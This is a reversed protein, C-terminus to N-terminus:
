TIQSWAKIGVTTRRPIMLHRTLALVYAHTGPSQEAEHEAEEAYETAGDTGTAPTPPVSEDGSEQTLASSDSDGAVLGATKHLRSKGKRTKRSPGASKERHSPSPAPSSSPLSASARMRRRSILTDYTEDAPLTFEGRFYPHIALNDSPSPSRIPVPPSSKNDSNEYIDFDIAELADMDYCDRLKRWIDEVDIWHGTDRYIANRIVLMHFHRHIGIPRARMISRFFTIEGELTDLFSEDAEGAAM